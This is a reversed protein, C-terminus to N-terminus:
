PKFILTQSLFLTTNLRYNVLPAGPGQQGKEPRQDGGRARAEGGPPEPVPDPLLRTHRRDAAVAAESTAPEPLAVCSTAAGRVLNRTTPGGQSDWAAKM